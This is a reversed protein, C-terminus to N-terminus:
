GGLLNKLEVNTMFHLGIDEFDSNGQLTHDNISPKNTMMNYDKSSTNLVGSVGGGGISGNVQGQPSITGRIEGENM